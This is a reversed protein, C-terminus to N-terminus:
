LRNELFEAVAVSSPRGALDLSPNFTVTLVGNELTLGAENGPTFTVQELRTRVYRSGLDDAAVLDIGKATTLVADALVAQDGSHKGEAIFTILTDHRRYILDSALRMREEVEWFDIAPARLSAARVPVPLVAKGGLPVRGAMRATERHSPAFLTAGGNSTVRLVPEKRSDKYIVDGRPSRTPTLLFVEEARRGQILACELTDLNSSGCLFRIRAEGDRVQFVFRQDGETTEYLQADRSSLRVAAPGRRTLLATFPDQAEAEGVPADDFSQAKAAGGGGLVLLACVVVLAALVPERWWPVPRIFLYKGKLGM